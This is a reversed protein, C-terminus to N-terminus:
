VILWQRNSKEAQFTKEAVTANLVGSELLTIYDLRGLTDDLLNKKIQSGAVSQSMIPIEQESEDRVNRAARSRRQKSRLSKSGREENQNPSKAQILQSKSHGNM